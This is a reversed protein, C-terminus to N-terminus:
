GFGSVSPPDTQPYGQGGERKTICMSVWDRFVVSTGHLSWPVQHHTISAIAESSPSQASSKINVLTGSPPFPLAGNAQENVDM